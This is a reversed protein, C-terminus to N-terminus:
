ENVKSNLFSQLIKKSILDPEQDDIHITLNPQCAQYLTQREQDLLRIKTLKSKPDLDALLPRDPNLSLHKLITTTKTRLWVLYGLQTLIQRNAAKLVIGGGTALILNKTRLSSSLNVLVQHELLRFKDEGDTAFIEPITKGTYKAIELDLDIFQRDLKQALIQGVTSKGSGPMGILILNKLM